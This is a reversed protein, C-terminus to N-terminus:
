RVRVVFPAALVVPREQLLHMIQLQEGVMSRVDAPLAQLVSDPSLEVKPQVAAMASPGADGTLLDALTKPAPVMRVDYGDAPLDVQGAAYTVAADLGGIEDVMGLDKAQAAVFVRGQAVDAINKIKGARTTMVRQTFQDYTQTMWDRVMRRQRDTFETESSFM